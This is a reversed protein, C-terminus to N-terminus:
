HKKIKSSARSYKSVRITVFLYFVQDHITCLLIIDISDNRKSIIQIILMLWLAESNETM